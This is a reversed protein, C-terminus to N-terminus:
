QSLDGLTFRLPNDFHRRSWYTVSPNTLDMLMTWLTGLSGPADGATVASVSAIANGLSQKDM